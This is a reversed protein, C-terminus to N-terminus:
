PCACSGARRWRGRPHTRCGPCRDDAYRDLEAAASHLLHELDLERGILACREVGAGIRDLLRISVRGALKSGAMAYGVPDADATRGAGTDVPVPASGGRNAQMQRTDHGARLRLSCRLERLAQRECRMQPLVCRRRSGNTVVEFPVPQSTTPGPRGHRASGQSRSPRSIRGDRENGTTRAARGPHHPCRPTEQPSHHHTGGNMLLQYSIGTKLQCPPSSHALNGRAGEAEAEAQHRRDGEDGARRHGLLFGGRLHGHLDDAGTGHGEGCDGLRRWSPAAGIM